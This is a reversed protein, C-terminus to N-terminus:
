FDNLTCLHGTCTIVQVDNPWARKILTPELAGEVDDYTRGCRDREGRYHAYDASRDTPAEALTHQVGLFANTLALPREGNVLEPRHTVVSALTVNSNEVSLLNVATVIVLGIVIRAVGAEPPKQSSDAEIFKWLEDIDKPALHAENSRPRLYDVYGALTAVEIMGTVLDLRAHGPRVLDRLKALVPIQPVTQVHVGLVHVVQCEAIVHAVEDTGHPHDELTAGTGSPVALGISFRTLIM